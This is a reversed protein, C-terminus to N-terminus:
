YSGVVPIQNAVEDTGLDYITMSSNDSAVSIQCWGYYYDTSPLIKIRYAFYGDQGFFDSGTISGNCNSSNIGILPSGITNSSTAAGGCAYWAMSTDYSTITYGESFRKIFVRIQSSINNDILFDTEINTSPDGFVLYYGGSAIYNPACGFANLSGFIMYVNADSIVQISDMNYGRDNLTLQTINHYIVPAQQNTNDGKKSCASFLLLLMLGVSHHLMKM